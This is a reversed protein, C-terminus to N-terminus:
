SNIEFVQRVKRYWVTGSPLTFNSWNKFSFDHRNVQPPINQGMMAAEILITGTGCMPDILPIDKNWGALKLLGAALVENLTAQHGM